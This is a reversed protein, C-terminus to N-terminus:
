LSSKWQEEVKLVFAISDRQPLAEGRYVDFLRRVRVLDEADEVVESNIANDLYAVEGSDFAAIVFPATFRACIRASAPIIQVIIKNDEEEAVEALHGLQDIMIKPGGVNNRLASEAILAVVSPPGDEKTLIAQRELRASVMEELDAEHEGARLVARAYDETQLLGPMVALEFSWLATARSEIEVWRGFWELPVAAKVFDERFRILVGSMGFLEDLKATDDTTPIRRGNEWMKILSESVFLDKALAVRSIGKAERARRIERALFTRASGNGASM